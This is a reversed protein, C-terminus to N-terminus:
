RGFRRERSLYNNIAKDLEVKDFEPWLKSSYYWESYASQWLMFGSSRYTNGARIILDPESQIYLSEWVNSEVPELGQDVLRKVANLIELRGGYGVAINVKYKKISKTEDEVRNMLDVLGKPLLSKDGPFVIRANIEIKGNLIDDLYRQMNAFIVDLESKDRRLNETSLAWFTVESLGLRRYDDIWNELLNEAVKFGKEYAVSYPIKMKRAYRRNGDPIFAVSKIENM